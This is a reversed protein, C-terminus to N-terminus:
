VDGIGTRDDKRDNLSPVIYGVLRDNFLELLEVLFAFPSGSDYCIWTEYIIAGLATNGSKKPVLIGCLQFESEEHDLVRRWFLHLVANAHKFSLLPLEFVEQRRGPFIGPM